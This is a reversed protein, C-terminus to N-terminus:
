SQLAALGNEGLMRRLARLARLQVQRVANATKGVVRATEEGSMGAYFRLLIVERQDAPLADIASALAQQIARDDAGDGVPLDPADELKVTASRAERRLFDVARDHAVRYLFSSFRHGRHEFRSADRYVRVFAESAIDSSAAENGTLRWAYAYIRPFWTEFYWEWTAPDGQRLRSEVADQHQAQASLRPFTSNASQVPMDRMESEVGNFAVPINRTARVVIPFTLSAANDDKPHVSSGV